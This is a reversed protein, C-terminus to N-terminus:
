GAVAELAHGRYYYGVLRALQDRPDLTVVEALAEEPGLLDLECQLDAAQPDTTEGYALAAAAATCLAVPRIGAALCAIAPGMLRDDAALKRRPERAVRVVPDNLTPDAYRNLIWGVHRLPLPVSGPRADLHAQFAQQAETVVAEVTARIRANSMADDVTAYGAHWGLYAAAAHGGNFVWLKEVMRDDFSQILGIGPVSGDLPAVGSVLSCVGLHCEDVGDSDFRLGEDTVTRRSVARWAVAGGVGLRRGVCGALPACTEILSMTLLEPARRHNEFTIVNIPAKSKEMRAQLLPALTRGAACLSSPGVSTAFLDAGAAVEPLAPDALSIASVGGIWRDERPDGCTRIWLGGGENITERVALNRCVLIVEWGADRLLPAVFGGAMRGAGLVLCRPTGM